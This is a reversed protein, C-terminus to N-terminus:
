WSFDESRTVDTGAKFLASVFSLDGSKSAACLTAIKNWYMWGYGSDDWRVKYPRSLLPDNDVCTVTHVSHDSDNFVTVVYDPQNLRANDGQSQRSKTTDHVSVYGDDPPAHKFTRPDGFNVVVQSGESATFAPTIWEATIPKIVVGFPADFSDNLSLSITKSIM